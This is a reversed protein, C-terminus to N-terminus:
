SLPLIQRVFIMRWFCRSKRGTFWVTRASLMIGSKQVCFRGKEQRRRGFVREPSDGSVVLGHNELFIIEPRGAAQCIKYYTEALAAGPKRYPVYVADPFLEELIERGDNRAALSGRAVRRATLM